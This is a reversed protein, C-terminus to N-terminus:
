RVATQGGALELEPQKASAHRAPAIQGVAGLVTPTQRPLIALHAEVLVMLGVAALVAKTQAQGAQRCLPVEGLAM